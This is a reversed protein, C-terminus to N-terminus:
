LKARIRRRQNCNFCLLRINELTSKGGLAFPILHDYQLNHTSGCLVCKGGDRQYVERKIHAPIVRSEDGLPPQKAANTQKFREKEIKNILEKILMQLLEDQSMPTALMSKAKQLLVFTEDKITLITTKPRENGTLEFLKQDCEKKTLKEISNIIIIKDETKEVNNEKMYKVASALNTLTLKGNEIRSPISPIEKILRASVIRKHTSTECLKLERSCYDYLSPYKLDSYLKREDIEILHFLIQVTNEREKIILKKMDELLAKDTLHKLNM